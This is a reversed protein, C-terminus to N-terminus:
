HNQSRVLLEQLQRFLAAEEPKQVKMSQVWANHDARRRAELAERGYISEYDHDPLADDDSMVTGRPFGVLKLPPLFLSNAQLAL